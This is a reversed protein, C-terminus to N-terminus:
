PEIERFWVADWLVVFNDFLWQGWHSPNPDLKRSGAEFDGAASLIEEAALAMFEIDPNVMEAVDWWRWGKPHAGFNNRIFYAYDAISRIEVSLGLEACVDSRTKTSRGRVNLFSAISQVVCDFAVFAELNFDHSKLDQARLFHSIAQHIFPDLTNRSTWKSWASPSQAGTPNGWQAIAESQANQLAVDFDPMPRMPGYRHFLTSSGFITPLAKHQEWAIMLVSAVGSRHVYQKAYHLFWNIVHKVEEDKIIAALGVDWLPAITTVALAGQCPFARMRPSSFLIPLAQQGLAVTNVEFWDSRKEVEISIAEIGSLLKPRLRLEMDSSDFWASVVQKANAARRRAQADSIM